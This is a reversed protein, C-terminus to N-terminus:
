RMMPYGGPGSPIAPMRGTEIEPRDEEEVVVAELTLLLSAVSAANRLANVAVKTPDIVGQEIMDAVTDTVVNYGINPNATSVAMEKIKHYIVEGNMGANACIQFLPAKLATAVIRIGAKLDESNYGVPVELQELVKAAYLYAVGGGPVIGEEVAARTAHLADEVRAKKEKMETETAAGIYLVIVGGSLKALREQAKEKDFDSQSAEIKVKTMDIRKQVDEKTGRGGIITCTDKSIVVKDAKGLDQIITDEINLGIKDDIVRGGTSAAIDELMELQNEGFGPAKVACGKVTGKMANFIFVSLATGDVDGAIILLPMAQKACKEMIPLLVAHNSISKGTILIGCNELECTLKDNNIFYPSIYGRPIEMGTIGETYTSFTKSDEVTIVGDMGADAMANAILDGLVSDNNASISAVAQLKTKDVDTSLQKL